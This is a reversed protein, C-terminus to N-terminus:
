KSDRMPRRSAGGGGGTAAMVSVEPQNSEKKQKYKRMPGPRAGGGGGTAAM